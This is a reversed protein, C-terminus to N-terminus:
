DNVTYWYSDVDHLDTFLELNEKGLFEIEEDTYFFGEKAGKSPKEQNMLQIYKESLPKKLTDYSKKGWESLKEYFKPKNNNGM